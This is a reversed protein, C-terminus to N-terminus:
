LITQKNIEDLYNPSIEISVAQMISEIAVVLRSRNGYRLVAGEIGKFLGATVRVKHGVPIEKENQVTNSEGVMMQIWHIQEDPIKSPKNQIGIFKVVGDTQLINLRDRSVDIRVFVYGSFLPIEVKKKRDSWNRTTKILPLSSEIGKEKFLQHVKKEHRSRVYIAYWCKVHPKCL